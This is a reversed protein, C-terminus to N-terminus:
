RGLRVRRANAAREQKGVVREEEGSRVRERGKLARENHELRAAVYRLFNLDGDCMIVDILRMSLTLPPWTSLLEDEGMAGGVGDPLLGADEYNMNGLTFKSYIHWSM